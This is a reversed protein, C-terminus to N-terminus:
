ELFNLSYEQWHKQVFSFAIGKHKHGRASYVFVCTSEFKTSINNDKEWDQVSLTGLGDPLVLPLVMKNKM